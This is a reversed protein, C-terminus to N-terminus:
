SAEIHIMNKDIKNIYKEYLKEQHGIAEVMLNPDMSVAEHFLRIFYSFLRIKRALIFEQYKQKTQALEFSDSSDKNRAKLLDEVIM